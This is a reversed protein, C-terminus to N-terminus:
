TAPTCRWRPCPHYDTHVTVGLQHVRDGLLRLSADIGDTISTPVREGHEARAFTRLNDVINKIRESGEACIRLLDPTQERVTTSGCAAASATSKAPRPRPLPM